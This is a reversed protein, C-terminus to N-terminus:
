KSCLKRGKILAYFIEDDSYMYQKIGKSILYERLSVMFARDLKAKLKLKFYIKKEEKNFLFQKVYNTESEM